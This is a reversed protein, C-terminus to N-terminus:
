KVKWIGVSLGLDMLKAILADAQPGEMQVWNTGYRIQPETQMGSRAQAAPRTDQGSAADATAVTGLVVGFVDQKIRKEAGKLLKRLLAVRAKKPDHPDNHERYIRTLNSFVDEYQIGIQPNKLRQRVTVLGEMGETGVVKDLTREYHTMPGHYVLSRRGFERIPKLVVTYYLPEDKSHNVTSFTWTMERNPQGARASPSENSENVSM